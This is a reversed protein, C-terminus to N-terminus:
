TTGAVCKFGASCPRGGQTLLDSPTPVKAGGDCYFGASCDLTSSTAGYSPCYKGRDCLKCSNESVLGTTDGYKGPPCPTEKETGGECYYGQPCIYGVVNNTPNKVTSGSTCVYGPSLILSVSKSAPTRLIVSGLLRM